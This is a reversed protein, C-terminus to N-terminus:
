GVRVRRPVQDYAAWRLVEAGDCARVSWVHQVYTDFRQEGGAEVQGYSVENGAFDLWVLHLARGSAQGHHGPSATMAGGTERM